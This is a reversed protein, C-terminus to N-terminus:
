RIGRAIGFSECVSDMAAILGTAQLPFLQVFTNGISIYQQCASGEEVSRQGVFECSYNDCQRSLRKSVPARLSPPHRVLIAALRSKM